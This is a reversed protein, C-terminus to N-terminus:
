NKKPVNIELFSDLYLELNRNYHNKERQIYEDIYHISNSKWHSMFDYKIKDVNLELEGKKESM